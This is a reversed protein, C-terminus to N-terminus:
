KGKKIRCLEKFSIDFIKILEIKTFYRLHVGKFLKSPHQEKYGKLYKRVNELNVEHITKM